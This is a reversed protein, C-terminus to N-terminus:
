NIRYSPEQCNAEGEGSFGEVVDGAKGARVISFEFFHDFGFHGQALRFCFELQPVRSVFTRLETIHEFM